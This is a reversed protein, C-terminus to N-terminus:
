ITITIEKELRVTKKRGDKMVLLEWDTNKGLFFFDTKMLYHNTVAKEVIKETFEVFYGDETMQVPVRGLYIMRGEGDDNFVRITHFLYWVLLALAAFLVVAGTTITIVGVVPSHFFLFGHSIQEPQPAEVIEAGVEPLVVKEKKVIYRIEPTPTVQPAMTKEPKKKAVPVTKITQEVVPTPIPTPVPTPVATPVPTPVPATTPAEINENSAEGPEHNESEQGSDEGSPESTPHYIEQGEEMGCTKEYREIDTDSKECDFLYGEVYEEDKQCSLEYKDVVDTSKGCVLSYGNVGNGYGCVLERHGGCDYVTFGDCGHGDGDYDHVKGCDYPHFEFHYPCYSTHAREIYCGDSHSHYNAQYCAGGTSTNGDHVHCIPTTYCGGGATEDGEHVHYVPTQYCKGGDTSNGEHTHYVPNQYCEGGEQENGSHHHYTVSASDAYATMEMAATLGIIAALCIGRRLRKKRNAATVKKRRILVLKKMFVKDKRLVNELNLCM